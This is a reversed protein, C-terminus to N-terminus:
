VSKSDKQAGSSHGAAYADSQHQQEAHHLANMRSTHAAVNRSTFEGIKTKLRKRPPGRPKDLSDSEESSSPDKGGQDSQSSDEPSSDAPYSTTGSETEQNDRLAALAVAKKVQAGQTTKFRDEQDKSNKAEMFGERLSTLFGMLMTGAAEDEKSRNPSNPAMLVDTTVPKLKLKQSAPPRPLLPSAATSPKAAIPLPQPAIPVIPQRAFYQVSPAVNPPPAMSTSAPQFPEPALQQPGPTVTFSM